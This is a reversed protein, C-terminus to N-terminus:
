LPAPLAAAASLIAMRAMGTWTCAASSIFALTVAVKTLHVLLQFSEFAAEQVQLPKSSQWM